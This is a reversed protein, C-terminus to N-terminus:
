LTHSLNPVIAGADGAAYLPRGSAPADAGLLQAQATLARLPRGMDRPSSCGGRGWYDPVIFALDECM